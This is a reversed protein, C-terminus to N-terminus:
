KELRTERNIVPLNTRQCDRKSALCIGLVLMALEECGPSVHVRLLLLISSSGSPKPAGFIVWIFLVLSSHM